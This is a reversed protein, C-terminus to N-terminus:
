PDKRESSKDWASMFSEMIVTGGVGCGWKEQRGSAAMVKINCWRSIVMNQQERGQSSYAGEKNNVVPSSAVFGRSHPEAAADGASCSSQNKVAFKVFGPFFTKM